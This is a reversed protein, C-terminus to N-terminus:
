NDPDYQTTIRSKCQCRGFQNCRWYINYIRKAEDIPWKGNTNYKNDKHILVLSKNSEHQQTLPLYIDDIFNRKSTNKTTTTTSRRDRSRDRAHQTSSNRKRLFRTKNRVNRNQTQNRQKTQTRTTNM